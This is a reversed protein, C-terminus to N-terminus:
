QARRAPAFGIATIGTPAHLPETSLSELEGAPTISILSAQNVATTRIAVVLNGTHPDLTLGSITAFRSDTLTRIVGRDPDLWVLRSQRPDAVVIEGALNLAVGSVSLIQSGRYLETASGDNRVRIVLGGSGIGDVDATAVIIDGSADLTLALDQLSSPAPAPLRFFETLTGSDSSLRFLSDTVNDGVILDGTSSTTLAVPSRLPLGAFVIRSVM